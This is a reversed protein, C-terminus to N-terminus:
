DSLARYADAIAAALADPSVLYHSHRWGQKVTLTSNPLLAHLKKGQRLPTMQDDSGWIIATQTTIKSPDLARDSHLMNELTKKMNAPAQAYDSAGLLRHTLKKLGQIKKLPTLTHALSKIVTNKLSPEYIGASDLLILARLRNSGRSALLNLLIRGGNSHGLALANRPLARDAWAVYKEMNWVASSPSGLGPVRLLEAKIQHKASLAHIVDLWPEVQYTWGHVIYLDASM